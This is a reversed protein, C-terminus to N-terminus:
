NVTYQVTLTWCLNYDTPDANFLVYLPKTTPVNYSVHLIYDPLNVIAIRKRHEPSLIIEAIKDKTFHKTKDLLPQIAYVLNRVGNPVSHKKILTSSISLVNPVGKLLTFKEKIIM